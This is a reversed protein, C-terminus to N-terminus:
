VNLNKWFLYVKTQLLFGCVKILRALRELSVKMVEEVYVKKHGFLLHSFFYKMFRTHSHKIFAERLKELDENNLTQLKNLVYKESGLLQINFGLQQLIEAIALAEKPPPQEAIKRMEAKEGFPNYKAMVAPMEVFPTGVKALTEKVLKVGLGITRYKPHVVVRSIISLKANLEKMTMKPLIM